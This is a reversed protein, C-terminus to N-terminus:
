RLIESNIKIVKMGYKTGVCTGYEEIWAYKKRAGRTRAIYVWFQIPYKKLLKIRKKRETNRDLLSRLDAAREEKDHVRGVNKRVKLLRVSHSIAIKYGTTIDALVYSGAPIHERLLNGRNKLRDLLARKRKDTRNVVKVIVSKAKEYDVMTSCDSISLGFTAIMVIPIVVTKIFWYRECEALLVFLGAPIMIDTSVSVIGQFRMVIWDSGAIRLAINYLSPVRIFVIVIGIIFLLSAVQKKRGSLLGLTFAVLLLLQEESSGLINALPVTRANVREDTRANDENGQGPAEDANRNQYTAEEEDVAEVASHTSQVFAYRSILAFPISMSVALMMGILHYPVARNRVSQIGILVTAYAILVVGLFLGYLSHVQGLVLFCLALSLIYKACFGSDLMKLAMGIGVSLLWYTSVKNPYIMYDCSVNHGLFVLTAIWAIWRNDFVIFALFYIGSANILTAFPSSQYWIDLVDCRTLQAASAIFAHFINTHYWPSFGEGLFPDANSLGSAFLFQIRAVHFEADGM